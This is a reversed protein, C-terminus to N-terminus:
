NGGGLAGYANSKILLLAERLHYITADPQVSDAIEWIRNLALELDLERAKSSDTM